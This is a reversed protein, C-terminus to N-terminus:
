ESASGFLQQEVLDCIIHGIAIHGEQIYQTNKSPVMIVVDVLNRLIGGGAGIMGITKIGRKQCLQVARVVNQSKGSTSIAILVDGQRGLAEVQREFVYEFGYDNANSTLFSTDTTLALASLAPREFDASLRNTFEAAIHQSDAASGGNGCLMVKGGARLAQAIVQAAALIEDLCEKAIAQKTEASETLHQKARERWAGEM